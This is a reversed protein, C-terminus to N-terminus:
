ADAPTQNKEALGLKLDVFALLALRRPTRSVVYGANMRVDLADRLEKVDEIDLMGLDIVSRPAGNQENM